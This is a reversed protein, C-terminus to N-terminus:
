SSPMVGFSSCSFVAAAISFSMTSFWRMGPEIMPPINSRKKQLFCISTTKFLVFCRRNIFLLSVHFM